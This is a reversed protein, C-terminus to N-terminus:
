NHSNRQSNGGSRQNGGRHSNGGQGGSHNRNRNGSRGRNYRKKNNKRYNGKGNGRRRPDESSYYPTDGLEEPVKKIPVSRQILREISRMRRQDKPSIFTIAEGTTNARATRGVRHVYDEADMPVDYNLVHSLNDIDIGRSLVDTGVLIRFERNKFRRLTSERDTQEKDSHIYDVKFKRKRLTRNINDVSAKSSAFIIMSEVEKENLLSELLPIKQEDYVSYATQDIGEAPTSLNLMVEEPDKMVEKAMQKIKRPMTASFMITQRSDPTEKLIGTIDEYFGMDMMKDAEDLIVVELESFDVIGLSIYMKLRGPTAIIIDAGNQLSKKQTEWDDKSAGGYVAISSVGSFYGLADVNQDIQKALERTPAIILAKSKTEESGSLKSILPILFAATKGTGTQACAILDKGELILPITQSQIWTAEDYGLSSISQLLDPDLPLEEFKM